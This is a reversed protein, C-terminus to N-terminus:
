PELTIEVSKQLLIQWFGVHRHAQEIVEDARALIRQPIIPYQYVFNTGSRRNAPPDGRKTAEIKQGSGSRCSWL